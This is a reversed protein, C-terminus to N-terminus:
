SAVVTKRVVDTMSLVGIPVSRDGRKETVVLRHVRHTTLLTIANTLSEDVDCSLCGPTMIERAKLARAQDPTRGQRALVLDTQSIIGIAQEEEIVVVAHINNRTMLMAAHGTSDEPTCSILGLHMLDRVKTGDDAIVPVVAEPLTESLTASASAYEEDGVHTDEPPLVPHSILNPDEATIGTGFGNAGILVSMNGHPHKNEYMLQHSLPLEEYTFARSLCPDVLGKLVLRNVGDCQEDNAFHSGQVRKQRM